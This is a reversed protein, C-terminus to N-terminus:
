AHAGNEDSPAPTEVAALRAVAAALVEGVAGGPQQASQMVVNAFACTPDGNHAATHCRFFEVLENLSDSAEARIQDMRALVQAPIHSM